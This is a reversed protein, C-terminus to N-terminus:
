ALSPPELLPEINSSHMSVAYHVTAAQRHIEPEYDGLQVVVSDASHSHWGHFKSPQKDDMDGKDAVKSPNNDHDHDHGHTGLAASHVEGGCANGHCHTGQVALMSALHMGVFAVILFKRM